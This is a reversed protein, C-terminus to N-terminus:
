MVNFRKLFSFDSQHMEFENHDTELQAEKAYVFMQQEYDNIAAEITEFKPNTLSEALILADQLGINAGKGAFPPMVHAADGILTIPLPRNKKWPKDLAIKRTKLVILSTASRFLQTYIVAWNACRKSLFDIIDEKEMLSDFDATKKLTIGFSLANGNKPNAVFLTDQDATMLINNDCLNYFEPCNKEPETIDGQIMISGTYEITADSVYQRVKSMGGNAGIIFDATSIENNEFELLWKNDKIELNLFKRNWVVTGPKLSELLIKRLNSRSIEPYDFQNQATPKNSFIINTQVDTITRGMATSMEYYRELLGIKKMAEQGTEKHLDLPGGSVRIQENLDREYVTVDLGNQQLLKAMTLGVPGAGIIAIKKDKLLM